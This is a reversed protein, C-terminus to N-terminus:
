YNQYDPVQPCYDWSRVNPDKSSVLKVIFHSSRVSMNLFAELFTQIGAMTKEGSGKHGVGDDDEAIFVGYLVSCSGSSGLGM